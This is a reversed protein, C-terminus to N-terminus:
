QRQLLADVIAQLVAPDKKGSAAATICNAVRMSLVNTSARIWLRGNFGVALEFPVRSGLFQLILSDRCLLSLAFPIPLEIIIGDRLEGLVKENSTWPKSCNSSCCTVEAGLLPSLHSLRLLLVSGVALQPRNRRTAGEFGAVAALRAPSSSRINVAYYESGKSTVVGVVLDGVRPTYRCNSSSCVYAPAHPPLVNRPKLMCATTAKACPGAAGLVEASSEQHQKKEGGAGGEEVNLKIGSWDFTRATAAAAEASGLAAAAAECATGKLNQLVPFFDGPLFLPSKPTAM